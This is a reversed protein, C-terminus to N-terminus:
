HLGYKLSHIWTKDIQPIKIGIKKKLIGGNESSPSYQMSGQTNMHSDHLTGISMSGGSGLLAGTPVVAFLIKTLLIKLKFGGKM